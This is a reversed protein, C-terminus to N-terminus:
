GQTIFDRAADSNNIARQNSIVICLVDPIFGFETQIEDQLADIEGSTKAGRVQAVFANIKNQM